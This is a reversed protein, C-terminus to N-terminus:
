NVKINRAKIMPTWRDLEAKLQARFQAPTNGVATMFLPKLRAAMEPTKLVKVTENRIKDVVPAPVKGPAVLGIWPDATVDVGSEVLTPVDPLLSSREAAGVALIKIRGSDMQSVISIAPVCLMQVDGRVLAIVAQPSSAYNVRVLQAGAKEALAEMALHTNSGTGISGYSFKGPNRRLLDVLESVKSVGLNADIALVAPQTALVTIPAIDTNPDYPLSSYLVTNLALPGAFSLGITSGDPPSKAIADTGLNGGAGNKNEVVFTHGLNKQLDSATLRALLDPTSGAIQPVIVRVQGTPWTQAFGTSAGSLLCAVVSVIRLRSM